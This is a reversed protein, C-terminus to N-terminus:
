SQQNMLTVTWITLTSETTDVRMLSGRFTAFTGRKPEALLLSKRISVSVKLDLFTGGTEYLESRGFTSAVSCPYTSGGFTVTEGLIPEILSCAFDLQALLDM